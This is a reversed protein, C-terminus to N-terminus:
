KHAEQLSPSFPAEDGFRLQDTKLYITGTGARDVALIEGGIWIKEGGALDQLQPYVTLDVESELVVGFGDESVDLLMTTGGDETEQLTFFYAPWLVPLHSFKADRVADNLNEMSALQDLLEAPSPKLFYSTHAATSESAGQGKEKQVSKFEISVPSVVALPEIEKESAKQLYIGGWIFFLFALGLGVLSM